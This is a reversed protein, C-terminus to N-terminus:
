EQMVGWSECWGGFPRMMETVRRQMGTVGDYTVQGEVRFLAYGDGEEDPPM